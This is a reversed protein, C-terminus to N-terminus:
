RGPAAERRDDTFGPLGVPLSRPEEIANALADPSSVVAPPGLLRVDAPDTMVDQKVAPPMGPLHARLLKRAEERRERDIRLHAGRRLVLRQRGEQKEVALDQTLVNGPELPDHPRLLRSPKGHDERAVLYAGNQVLQVARRSEHRHEEVPSPEAQELAGPEAGLVGVETCVLQHHPAALAIAISHGHQGRDRPPGEGAVELAHAALM